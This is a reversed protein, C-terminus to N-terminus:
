TNTHRGEGRNSAISEKIESDNVRRVHPILNDIAWSDKGFRVPFFIFSASFLQKNIDNSFCQLQM